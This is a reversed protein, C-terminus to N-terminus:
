LGRLLLSMWKDVSICFAWKKGAVRQAKSHSNIVEFQQSTERQKPFCWSVKHCGFTKSLFTKWCSNQNSFNHLNGSLGREPVNLGVNLSFGTLIQLAQMYRDGCVATPWSTFSKKKWMYTKLCSSIWPKVRQGSSGKKDHPWMRMHSSM